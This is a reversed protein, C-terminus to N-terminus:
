TKAGLIGGVVAMFVLDWSKEPDEGIRQMEARLIYGATLFALLMMVGFSTIPQGGLLPLWEPLKFLIPYM